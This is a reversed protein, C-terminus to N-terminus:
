RAGVVLNTRDHLCLWQKFDATRHLLLMPRGCETCPMDDVVTVEHAAAVWAVVVAVAAVLVALWGIV